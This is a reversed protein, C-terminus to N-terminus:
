EMCDITLIWGSVCIRRRRISLLKGEIIFEGPNM